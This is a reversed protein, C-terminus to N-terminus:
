TKVQFPLARLDLKEDLKLLGAPQRPDFGMGLVLIAM